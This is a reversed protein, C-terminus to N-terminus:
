EDGCEPRDDYVDFRAMELSPWSLGTVWWQDNTLVQEGEWLLAAGLFVRIRATSEGYGHDNYYHVGIRYTLSELEGLVILEPGAGNTDEIELRPDGSPGPEGWDPERARFHCDWRDDEWCGSPHLLHLDLDSGSGFGVDAENPDHPTIWTLEILLGETPRTAVLTHGYESWCEDADSERLSVSYYGVEDAVFTTTEVDPEFLTQQGSPSHIAWEWRTTPNDGPTSFAATCEVEVGAAVVLPDDYEDDSGAPRCLPAAIACQAPPAAQADGAVWISETASALGEWHFALEGSSNVPRTPAFHIEFHSTQGPAISLEDPADVTLAAQEAGFPGFGEPSILTAGVGPDGCNTVDLGISATTGVLLTGFDLSVPAFQVCRERETPADAGTDSGTGTDTAIATTPVVRDESCAFVGLLATLLSLKRRM